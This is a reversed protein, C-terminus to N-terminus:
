GGGSSSGETRRNKWSADAAGNRNLKKQDLYAANTLTQADSNFQM